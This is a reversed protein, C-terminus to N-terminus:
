IDLIWKKKFVERNKETQKRREETYGYTGAGIHVINPNNLSVLKYGKSKATTSIDIDEYDMPAFREDFFGLDIWGDSTCALFYGELYDHTTNNFVNWGSDFAIHRNGVLYRQRKLLIEEAQHIFKGHIKVDNSIAFVIKRETGCVASLGANFGRVFGVNSDLRLITIPFTKFGDWTALGVSAEPRSGNDVVLIEDIGDKEHLVLGALLTNTLDFRNYCLIVISTKYDKSM